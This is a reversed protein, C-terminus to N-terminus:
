SVARRMTAARYTNDMLMAVTMRGTGGPMPTLHGAVDWVDEHVDGKIAGDVRTLGVDLVAAGPKVMDATIMGPKGVAAVLIDAQQCLEPLNQTRSHALTVTAHGRLLLAAAPKGVLNSRGVIMARKGLVDINYHKLIAILGRPTCPFLGDQGAWLRGINVPHLGDVDKAPDIKVLIQQDNLHNPLPLQVLIGDVDPDHNLEAVLTEVEAQSTDEPLAHVKSTVGLSTAMRDKGRVYSISAPDDGVRIFHIAPKYSLQSIAELLTTKVHEAVERGDLRVATM